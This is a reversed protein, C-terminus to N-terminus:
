NGLHLTKLFIIKKGRRFTKSCNMNFKVKLVLVFDICPKGTLLRCDQNCIFSFSLISDGTFTGNYVWNFRIEFGSDTTPVEGVWGRLLLGLVRAVLGELYINRVSQGSVSTLFIVLCFLICEKKQILMRSTWWHYAFNM